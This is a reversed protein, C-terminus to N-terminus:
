YEFIDISYDDLVDITWIIGDWSSRLQLGFAKNAVVSLSHAIKVTHNFLHHVEM